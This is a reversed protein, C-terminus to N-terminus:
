LKVKTNKPQILNGYGYAKNRETKVTEDEGLLHRYKDQYNSTPKVVISVKSESVLKQDAEKKLEQYKKATEENWEEQNKRATIEDESPVFEKKYVTIYRDVEEIGFSM